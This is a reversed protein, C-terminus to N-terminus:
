HVPLIPLSSVTVRFAREAQANLDVNELGYGSHDRGRRMMEKKMLSLKSIVVM